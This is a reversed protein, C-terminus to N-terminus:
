ETKNGGGRGVLNEVVKQPLERQVQRGGKLGMFGPDDGGVMGDGVVKRGEKRRKTGQESRAVEENEQNLFVTKVRAELEQGM